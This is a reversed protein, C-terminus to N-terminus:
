RLEAVVGGAGAVGSIGDAGVTVRGEVAGGIGGAGGGGAGVLEEVGGGEGCRGETSDTIEAAVGEGAGAVGGPIEGEGLEGGEAFAEAELEARLEEVDEVM